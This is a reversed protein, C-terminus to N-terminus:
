VIEDDESEDIGVIQSIEKNLLAMHKEQEKRIEDINNFVTNRLTNKGGFGPHEVKRGFDSIGDTLTPTGKTKITHPKIGFELWMPNVMPARRGKKRANKKSFYGIQLEPIGTYRDLKGWYGVVGQLRASRVATNEKVKEAAKKGGARMAARQLKQMTKIVDQSTDVFKVTNM